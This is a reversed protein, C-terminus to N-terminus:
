LQIKIRKLDMQEKLLKQFETPDSVTKSRADLSNKKVRTVIDNLAKEKEKDTMDGKLTTNFLAAVEKHEEELEFTNIVKAPVLQGEALQAFVLEAVQKYLPSLFDDKTIYESVKKYIHPEDILWTLLLKQAQNVGNDQQKKKEAIIPEKKKVEQKNSFLLRKQNVQRKIGELPLMYERCVAELYNNREMDDEFDRVLKESVANYFATKSEPDQLNYERQLIGIEFLFSNKAKRLREEFAEAGLAKICEDPDKHPSLDVVKAVLGAEKLIPIARMAAKVGAADSDYILLVEKTYRKLLSAQGSTFSTGLSAVASAYGAQHMAIVDMYGECLIMYGARSTRAAHLGYLNRSKDFVKTEPSNLYKPMGDGMVRGGFGIVRSNADMIPFMVRNWFKDHVGKEDFTFLGCEKLIADSYKKKLQHYLLNGGKGAYGLGFKNITEDSLERGVLYGKAVRGKEGRLQRCFFVAAEKNINLLTTRLDSARRQEETEEVEPLTIGAREALMKVAETFTYNEYKMVFSFVNGGEGCGFCYYMQKHPSVSFSPSKENHFPCLGFYSNGKRQLKVYGSIVEVIDNRTRIEEILDDSYRM